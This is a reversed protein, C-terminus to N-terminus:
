IKTYWASGLRLSKADSIEYDVPNEEGFKNRFILELDENVWWHGDWEPKSNGYHRVSRQHNKTSSSGATSSDICRYYGKASFIYLREASSYDSAMRARWTGFLVLQIEAETEFM